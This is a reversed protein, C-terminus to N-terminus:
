NTDTRLGRRERDLLMEAKIRRILPGALRKALEELQEPTAAAPTGPAAAGGTAPGHTAAGAPAAAPGGYAAIGSDAEGPGSTAPVPTEPVTAPPEIGHSVAERQVAEEGEVRHLAPPALSLTAARSTDWRLGPVAAAQAEPVTQGAASPGDALLGLAAGRGPTSGSVGPLTGTSADLRQLRVPGPGGTPPVPTPPSTLVHTPAAPGALSGAAASDRTGRDGAASREVSITRQIVRGVAASPEPSADPDWGSALDGAGGSESPSGLDSDLGLDRDFDPGNDTGLMAAAPAFAPPAAPVSLTGADPEATSALLQGPLTGQLTGRLTATGPVLAPTQSRPAPAATPLATLRQWTEPTPVPGAAAVIRLLVPGASTPIARALPDDSSEGARQIGRQIGSADVPPSSADPAPKGAGTRGSAAAGDSSWEGQGHTPALAVAPVPLEDARPATEAPADNSPRRQVAPSGIAMAQQGAAPGHVLPLQTAAAAPQEGVRPLDPHARPARVPETMSSAREPVASEPVAPLSVAPLSVAPLAVAPFSVEDFTEGAGPGHAAGHVESLPDVAPVSRSVVPMGGPIGETAHPAPGDLGAYIDGGPDLAGTSGAALLLPASGDDSAPAGDPPPSVSAETTGADVEPAPMDSGPDPAAASDRRPSDSLEASTPAPGAATGGGDSPPFAEIAERTSGAGNTNDTAPPVAPTAPPRLAPIRQVPFTGASTGSSGDYATGSIPVPSTGPFSESSEAPESFSLPMGLGLRPPHPVHRFSPSTDGAATSARQVAPTSPLPVYTASGDSTSGDTSGPRGSGPPEVHSVPASVTPGPSSGSDQSQLPAADVHLVPFADSAAMLLSGDEQSGGDSWDGDLRNGEPTGGDPGARQVTTPMRGLKGQTPRVRPAPPPLLTMEVPSAAYGGTGPVPGGGDVDIVGAPAETSVLHTMPGTFSPDGWSALAGTFHDPDSTLQISGASRQLPPLFAWGAPAVRPEVAPPAASPRPAGDTRPQDAGRQWPWRM